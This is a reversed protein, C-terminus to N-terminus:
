RSGFDSHLIIELDEPDNCLLTPVLQGLVDIQWILSVEEVCHTECWELREYAKDIIELRVDPSSLDIMSVCPGSIWQHCSPAHPTHSLLKMNARWSALLMLHQRRVTELLRDNAEDISIAEEGATQGDYPNTKM